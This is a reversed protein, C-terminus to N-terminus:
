GAWQPRAITNAPALAPASATAAAAPKGLLDRDVQEPKKWAQREPTIVERITNKAAYDDKAPEVGVRVVFQLQDFDGWGKTQRALKAAESEDDPRVGRASELMAKLAKRSIEIAQEHNGGVVTYRNWFKRKAYTGDVVVFECNLHESNGDKARTLWGDTGAGGPRLTMQVTCITGDPIVDFTKQQGDKNFDFDFGSNTM